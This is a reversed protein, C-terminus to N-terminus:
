SFPQLAENLRAQYEDIRRRKLTEYGRVHDPLQALAVALDINHETLSKLVLDLAARFEGPM